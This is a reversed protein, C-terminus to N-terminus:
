RRVQLSTLRNVRRINDDAGVLWFLICQSQFDNPIHLMYWFYLLLKSLGYKESMDFASLRSNTVCDICTPSTGNGLIWLLFLSTSFTCGFFIRSKLIHVLKSVQSAPLLFYCCKSWGYKGPLDFAKRSSNTVYGICTPSTGNGLHIM